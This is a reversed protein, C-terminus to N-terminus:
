SEPIRRGTVEEIPVKIWAPSLPEAWSRLPGRSLRAVQVVDVVHWLHGRVIVSWGADYLARSEDVEVVVPTEDALSGLRSQSDTCFVMVEEQPDAVYNLPVIQPAGEWQFGVRAVFGHGRLLALCESRTLEETLHHHPQDDPHSAM